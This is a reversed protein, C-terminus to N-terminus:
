LRRLYFCAQDGDSAANLAATKAQFRAIEAQSFLPQSGANAFSQKSRLPIDRLYQESGWFQFASSDYFVETLVLGAQEAMIRIGQETHLFIHRPADFQVWNTGYNRWAYTGAVPIRILIHKGPKTLRAADKLTSLPDPMHEFSHHFMVLDYSGEMQGLQSKRIHVGEHHLDSEIYWDVGTLHTFGLGSLYLLLQGAGSGVDLVKDDLKIGTRPLWEPIDPPGKILTMLRGPLSSRGFFHEGRKRRLFRHLASCHVSAPTGFSYYDKPYYKSLDDPVVALQISGCIACQFYLFEDRLGFM